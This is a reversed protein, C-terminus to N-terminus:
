RSGAAPAGAPAGGPRPPPAPGRQPGFSFSILGAAVLAALHEMTRAVGRGGAIEQVTRRGDVARLTGLAAAPVAVPEDPTGPVFRPVALLSPVAARVEVGRIAAEEVYARMAAGRLSVNPAPPRQGSVFAFRAGPNLFLIADVAELGEETGFSAATIEGDELYLQATPSEGLGGTGAGAAGGGLRLCGTKGVGGLLRLLAPLSVGTLTGQLEAM